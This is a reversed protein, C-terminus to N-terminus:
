RSVSQYSGYVTETYKSDRVAVALLRGVTALFCSVSIVDSVSMSDFRFSNIHGSNEAYLVVRVSFLRATNSVSSNARIGCHTASIIVRRKSSDTDRSGSFLHASAM